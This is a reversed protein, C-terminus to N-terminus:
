HVGHGLPVYEDVIPADVHKAHGDPVCHFEEEVPIDDHRGHLGPIVHMSPLVHTGVNNFLANVGETDTKPPGPPLGPGSNAHGAPVTTVPIDKEILRVKLTGTLTVRRQLETDNIEM